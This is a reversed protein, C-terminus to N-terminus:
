FWAVILYWWIKTMRTGLTHIENACCCVETKLHWCSFWAIRDILLFRVAARKRSNGRNFDGINHPQRKWQASRQSELRAQSSCQSTRGPVLVMLKLQRSRIGDDQKILLIASRAV